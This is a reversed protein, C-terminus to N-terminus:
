RWGLYSHNSFAKFPLSKDCPKLIQEQPITLIIDPFFTPEM